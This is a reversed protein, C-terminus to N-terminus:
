PASSITLSQRGSWMECPALRHLHETIASEVCVFNEWGDEPLDGIGHNPGPNWVVVDPFNESRVHITKRGSALSVSRDAADFYARDIEKGFAFPMSEPAEMRKGAENLFVMEELGHVAAECADDVALYTHLAAQFEFPSNGPNEITLIMALSDESLEFALNLSFDHPWENRSTLSTSLSFCNGHASIDWESKRAFGHRGFPGHDSFQPFIVPVGGRIAKDTSYDAIPSLYLHEQGDATKWSIAHGGHRAVILESGSDHNLRYCETGGPGEIKEM